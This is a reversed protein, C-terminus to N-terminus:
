FVVVRQVERATITVNALVVVLQPLLIAFNAAGAFVDIGDVGLLKSLGHFGKGAVITTAATVAFFGVAIGVGHTFSAGSALVVIYQGNGDAFCTPDSFVVGVVALHALNGFGFGTGNTPGAPVVVSGVLRRFRRAFGARVSPIQAVFAFINLFVVFFFITFVAGLSRV